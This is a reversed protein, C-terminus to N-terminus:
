FDFPKYIFFLIFTLRIEDHATEKKFDVKFIDLIESRIFSGKKNRVKSLLHQYKTSILFFNIM